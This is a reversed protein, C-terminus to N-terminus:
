TRQSQNRDRGFSEVPLFLARVRCEGEGNASSEEVLTGWCDARLCHCADSVSSRYAWFKRRQLLYCGGRHADLASWLVFSPLIPRDVAHFSGDPQDRPSRRVSK